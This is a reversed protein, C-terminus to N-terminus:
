QSLVSRVAAINGNAPDLLGDVVLLFQVREMEALKTWWDTAGRDVLAKFALLCLTANTEDESWLRERVQHVAGAAEIVAGKQSHADDRAEILKGEIFDLQDLVFDALATRYVM